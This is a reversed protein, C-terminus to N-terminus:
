SEGGLVPRINELVNNIIVEMATSTRTAGTIADVEGNDPDEDGTGSGQVDVTIGESPIREGAFQDKFWQEEIRGGLGPTENHSIIELGAIRSVSSNVAIVGTITGWLGSGAFSRAYVRSGDVVSTYFEMDEIERTQVNDFKEYVEEPSDYSINMASLIARQRFLEQNAEVREATASHAFA